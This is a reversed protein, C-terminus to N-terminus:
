KSHINRFDALRKNWVSIGMASTDTDERFLLDLIYRPRKGGTFMSMICSTCYVVVDECPMEEARKRMIDAVKEIDAKGYFTQGCCRAKEMAYTAENISINMRKLLKRIAALSEPQSRASCTDQISMCIGGYDPFPFDDSEALETLFLLTSCNDFRSYEAACATCPTIICTKSEFVPRDFCCTLITEMEGYKRTVINKLKDALHPKYAMLACGPAYVYNM